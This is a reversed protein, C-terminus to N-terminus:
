KSPTFGYFNKYFETVCSEYFDKTIKDPHLIHAIYISGLFSGPVPSDWAETDNPLKVVNKNKIATCNALNADNLVDDVSYSADAAIIIYEPNWTLIQEYSVNAWYTDTLESAVNKGGANTLLTDQYMHSGATSLVSSNGALYVSPAKEDAVDNKTSTLFTDISNNLATARGYTNTITGALTICEKLLSQDEPNVVVAKIGLEDLTDAVVVKGDKIHQAQSAKEIEVNWGNGWPQWMQGYFLGGALNGDVQKKVDQTWNSDYVTWAIGHPQLEKSCSKSQTNVDENMFREGNQNM